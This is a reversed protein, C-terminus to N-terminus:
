SLTQVSVLVCASERACYTHTKCLSLPPLFIKKYIFCMITLLCAGMFHLYINSSLQFSSFCAIHGGTILLCEARERATHKGLVKTARRLPPRLCVNLSYLPGPAQVAVEIITGLSIRNKDGRPNERIV